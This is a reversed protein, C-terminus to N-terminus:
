AQPPPAVQLRPLAEVDRRRPPLLDVARQDLGAGRDRSSGGPHGPAPAPAAAPASCRCRPPPAARPDRVLGIGRVLDPVVQQPADLAAHHLVPGAHHSPRRRPSPLRPRTRDRVRREGPAWWGSLEAVIGRRQADLVVLERTLTEIRATGLAMALHMAYSPWNPAAWQCLGPVLRRSNRHWDYLM